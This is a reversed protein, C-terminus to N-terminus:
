TSFSVEPYNLLPSSITRPDLSLLWLHRRNTKEAGRMLARHAKLQQLLLRSLIDTRLSPPWDLQRAIDQGGRINVVFQVLYDQRLYKVALWRLRFIDFYSRPDKWRHHGM